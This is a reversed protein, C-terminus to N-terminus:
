LEIEDGVAQMSDWDSLSPLEGTTMALRQQLTLRVQKGKAGTRKIHLVVRDQQINEIEFFDGNDLQLSTIFDKPLRVAKSNGWQKVELRM